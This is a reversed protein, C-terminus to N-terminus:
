PAAEPCASTTGASCPTEGTSGPAQAIGQRPPLAIKKGSLKKELVPIAARPDTDCQGMTTADGVWEGENAPLLSEYSKALTHCYQTDAPTGTAVNQQASAAFPLSFALGTMLCLKVTKM